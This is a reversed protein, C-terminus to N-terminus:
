GMCCTVHLFARRVRLDRVTQPTPTTSLVTTVQPHVTSLVSSWYKSASGWRYRALLCPPLSLHTCTAPIAPISHIAEHPCPTFMSAMAHHPCPTAPAPQTRGHATMHMYQLRGALRWATPMSGRRVLTAHPPWTYGLTYPTYVTYSHLLYPPAARAACGRVLTTSRPNDAPFVARTVWGHGVLFGCTEDFRDRSDTTVTVASAPM